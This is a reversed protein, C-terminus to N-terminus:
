LLGEMLYVKVLKENVDVDFVVDDIVFLLIEKGVVMKVVWVDNVGFMLIEFIIGLNEGEEIM